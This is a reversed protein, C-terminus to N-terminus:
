EQKTKEVVIRKNQENGLIRRNINDNIINKTHQSATQGLGFYDLLSSQNETINKIPKTKAIYGTKKHATAKDTTMNKKITTPETVTYNKEDQKEPEILYKKEVTEWKPSFSEENKKSLATNLKEDLLYLQRGLPRALNEIKEMVKKSQLEDDPITIIPTIKKEKVDDTQPTLNKVRQEYIINSSSIPLDPRNYIKQIPSNFSKQPAYFIRRKTDNYIQETVPFNDNLIQSNSQLIKQAMYKKNLSFSNVKNRLIVPTKKELLDLLTKEDQTAKRDSSIKSKKLRKKGEKVM